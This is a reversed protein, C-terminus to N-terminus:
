HHKKAHHQRKAARKKAHAKPHKRKKGNARKKPAAEAVGGADLNQWNPNAPAQNMGGTAPADPAAPAAPAAPAVPAVPAAPAAPGEAWVASGLLTSIVLIGLMQTTAKM